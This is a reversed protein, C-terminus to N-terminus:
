KKVKKRTATRNKRGKAIASAMEKRQKDQPAFLKDVAEDIQQDFEKTHRCTDNEAYRIGKCPAGVWYAKGKPPQVKVHLYFGEGGDAPSIFVLGTGLAFPKLNKGAVYDEIVKRAKSKRTAM